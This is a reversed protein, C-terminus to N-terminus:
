ISHESFSSVSLMIKIDNSSPSFRAWSLQSLNYQIISIDTENIAKTDIIYFLVVQWVCSLISSLM